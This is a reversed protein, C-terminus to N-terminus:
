VFAHPAQGLKVFTPGLEELAERLEVAFARRRVAAPAFGFRAAAAAAALHRVAVRRIEATRTSM